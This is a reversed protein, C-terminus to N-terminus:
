QIRERCRPSLRSVSGVCDSGILQVARETLGMAVALHAAATVGERMLQLARRESGVAMLTVKHVLEHLGTSGEHIGGAAQTADETGEVLESDFNIAVRCQRRVRDLLLRSATTRAWSWLVPWPRGPSVGLNTIGRAVVEGAVDEPDNRRGFWAAVWDALAVHLMTWPQGASAVMNFDAPGSEVERSHM